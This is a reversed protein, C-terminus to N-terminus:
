IGLIVNTDLIYVVFFHYTLTYTGMTIALAPVYKACHLTMTGLVLVSFGEFEEM